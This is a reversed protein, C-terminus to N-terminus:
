NNCPNHTNKGIRFQFKGGPKINRCITACTKYFYVSTGNQFIVRKIVIQFNGDKGLGAYLGILRSGGPIMVHQGNIRYNVDSTVRALVDRSSSNIASELAANIVSESNLTMESVPPQQAYVCILVSLLLTVILRKM